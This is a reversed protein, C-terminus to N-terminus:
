RTPYAFMQDFFQENVQLEDQMTQCYSLRDNGSMSEWQENNIKTTEIILKELIDVQQETPLVKELTALCKHKSEEIKTLNNKKWLAFAITSKKSIDPYESQCKYVFEEIFQATFFCASAVRLADSAISISSHLTLAVFVLSTIKIKMAHHM